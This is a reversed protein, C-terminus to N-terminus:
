KGMFGGAQIDWLMKYHSSPKNLLESHTGREVIEGKVLVIIEDMQMITSLRHAIVITTREHMLEKLASQILKESYSDLSSTAEDLILLPANKLMARAIAIRQREGGSLKIGREGVFTNYGDQLESIFEHCRAKKAVDIIEDMTANPKGYGINEALTRHFLIPDQPVYTIANRLSDQKIKTIDQQDFFIPNSPVDYLRLLLKVLTSKGQGSESVLAIKRHAPIELSFIDFVPNQPQYSFCLNNISIAGDNIQLSTADPTDSVAPPTNLIDIMEHAEAYATSVTRIHRGFDWLRWFIMLTLTQLLVFDGVTILNQQWFQIGIYLLLYETILMMGGQIAFSVSSFYWSKKMAQFWRQGIEEFLALEKYFTGYQSITAHNIITDAFFGTYNSDIENVRKDMPLKFYVFIFNLLMFLLFWISLILTFAPQISYLLILGIATLLLSPYINLFINDTIIELSKVLRNSKKVLSGAFNNVFFEYSHKHLSSFSANACTVMSTLEFHLVAFDFVRWGVWTVINLVLITVLISLLTSSQPTISALHDIFQKYLLPVLSGGGRGITVGIFMALAYPWRKKVVKLYFSTVSLKNNQKM